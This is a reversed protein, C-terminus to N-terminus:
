SIDQDYTVRYDPPVSESIRFNSITVSAGDASKTYLQCLDGAVWGSIDESYTQMDAGALHRETGVAVGNRYIRGYGENGPISITFSISLVGSRPIIIEKIKTYATVSSAAIRSADCTWGDLSGDTNGQYTGAVAQLSPVVPIWTAGDYVYCFLLDTRYFFDGTNPSGPFSTGHNFSGNALINRLLRTALDAASGQPNIGLSSEIAMIEAESDNFFAAQVLDVKDEKPTFTKLGAPYSASM